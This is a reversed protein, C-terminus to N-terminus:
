SYIETGKALVMLPEKYSRQYFLRVSWVACYRVIEIDWVACYRLIEIVWVACYRVIEIDWM